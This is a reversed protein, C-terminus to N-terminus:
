PHPRPQPPGGVTHAARLTEDPVVMNANKALKAMISARQGASVHGMEGRGTDDLSDLQSMVNGDGGAMMQASIGGAVGLPGLQGLQAMMMQQQQQVAM